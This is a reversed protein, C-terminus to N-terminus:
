ALGGPATHVPPRTAGPGGTPDVGHCTGAAMTEISCGDLGLPAELARAAQAADDRVQPRDALQVLLAQRTV